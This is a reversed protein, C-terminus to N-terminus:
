PCPGWSALLTALDAAGIDGNEDADFCECGPVVPGWCALLAALDGAGTSGDGTSDTPCNDCKPECPGCDEPCRECDEALGGGGCFGGSCLFGCLDAAESACRIRWQEDNEDSDRPCPSMNIMDVIAGFQDLYLIDIPAYTNYMWFGDSRVTNHTFLMGTGSSIVTRCMLGQTRESSEDAVEVQLTIDDQGTSLTLNTLPLMEYQRDDCDPGVVFIPTPYNITSQCGAAIVFAVLVAGTSVAFATTASPFKVSRHYSVSRATRACAGVIGIGVGGLLGILAAQRGAYRAARAM